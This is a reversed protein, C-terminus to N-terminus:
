AFALVNDAPAHGEVLALVHDTWRALALRVAKEYGSRNYIGAVGRRHGSYHNLVAEIVHPEIGIDAM